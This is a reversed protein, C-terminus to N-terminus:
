DVDPEASKRLYPWYNRTYICISIFNILFAIVEFTYVLTANLFQVPAEELAFVCCILPFNICTRLKGSWHARGSVKYMSGISRLFTVWQDRALFFVAMLLLVTAHARHHNKMAIFVLLPMTILYFFKDMLPDAHAGLKTVVNFKRAYYGDFFDTVASAILTALSVYFLLSGPFEANILAGTFFLIVLPFRAFTLVTVFVLKASKSREEELQCDITM